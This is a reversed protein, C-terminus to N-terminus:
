GGTQLKSKISFFVSDYAHIFVKAPTALFVNKRCPLQDHFRFNFLPVTCKEIKKMESIYNSYTDPCNSCYESWHITLHFHATM